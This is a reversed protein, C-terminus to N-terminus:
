MGRASSSSRSGRTILEMWAHRREIEREGEASEDLEAARLVGLVPRQEVVLADEQGGVAAPSAVVPRAAIRLCSVLCFHPQGTRPWWGGKCRAACASATCSSRISMISRSASPESESSPKTSHWEMAPPVPEPM